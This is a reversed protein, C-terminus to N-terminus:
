TMGAMKKHGSTLDSDSKGGTAQDYTTCCMAENQATRDVFPGGRFGRRDLEPMTAPMSGPRCLESNAPPM